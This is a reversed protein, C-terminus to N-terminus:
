CKDNNDFVVVDNIKIKFEKSDFECGLKKERFWLSWGGVRNCSLELGFATNTIKYEKGDIIVSTDHYTNSKEM